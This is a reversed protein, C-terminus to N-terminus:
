KLLTMRKTLTVEDQTLKYFYVGSSYTSADWTVTHSGSEKYGNELVEVKQGLLNYVELKVNGSRALTYNIQTSANFPNPYNSILETRSPLESYGGWNGELVWETAEGYIRNGSVTFEFSAIDCVIWGDLDGCYARYEYTGAPASNPVFQDLHQSYYRDVPISINNFTWLQVFINGFIVGVWVDTVIPEDTPNGIIGTLGFSGGPPVVVPDEDPDMDVDCCQWPDDGEVMVAYFDFSGAGYSNSQGVLVYENDMTEIASYCGDVGQGGYTRTWETHGYSDTKILYFDENGAGFSKTLGALAYGGDPTHFVARIRDDDDGGYTRNWDLDGLADVKMLFADYEEGDENYGAIVFNDDDSNEIARARESISTGHTRTWLTDGSSNTRLIYVDFNGAGFSATEGAIMFGDDPMLMLDYAADAESGGYTKSWVVSGSSSIKVLYVDNGGAGFSQTAGALLFGGDPTETISNVREYDSGGYTEQWILNGDNDTKVVFMDRSSSYSHSYGAVLFGGDSSELLCLARDDESGGFTRAWEIQFDGDTKVLYFDEEGAGYSSTFGAIAFGGDNTERIDRAGDSYNGGFAATLLTDGPASFAASTFLIFLTISILIRSYM